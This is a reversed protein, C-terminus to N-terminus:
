IKPHIKMSLMPASISVHAAFFPRLGPPRLASYLGRCLNITDQSRSINGSSAAIACAAMKPTSRPMAHSEHIKKRGSARGIENREPGGGM